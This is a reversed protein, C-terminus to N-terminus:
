LQIPRISYATMPRISDALLFIINDMRLIEYPPILYSLFILFPPSLDVGGKLM